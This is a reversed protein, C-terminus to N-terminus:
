ISATTAAKIHALHHKGHWEYILTNQDLRIQNQSEPHIFTKSFDEENMHNLLHSWREHLAELLQISVPVLQLNSDSLAAWKEERYPKITPNDETLALKFRIFSNMHSDACHHIIQQISWGGARYKKEFDQAELNKIAQKLEFPFQTISHIAQKLEIPTVKSLLPSEGIPFQKLKLDLIEVPVIEEVATFNIEGYVHPFKEGKNKLDEEKWEQQLKQPNIKVLYLDKAQPYHKELVSKLQHLYSAHIFGEEQLSPHWLVGEEKMESVQTGSCIKYFYTM